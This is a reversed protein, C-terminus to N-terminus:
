RAARRQFILALGWLILLAPWFQLLNFDWLNYSLFSLGAFLLTLGFVMQGTRKDRALLLVGVGILLLLFLWGMPAHWGFPWLCLFPLSFLFAFFLMFMLMGIGFLRLIM